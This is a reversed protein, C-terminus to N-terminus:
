KHATAVQATERLAMRLVHGEVKSFSVRALEALTPAIDAPTAAAEYRGPKIGAGYFLVPVRQDDANASGHTTGTTTTMWGPKLALTLDGSRGDVYSLAAARVLRNASTRGGRLQESRLVQEVGPLAHLSATIKLLTAPSAQLKEYVGPAFYVQNSVVASVWKGPGWAAHLQREVVARVVELSLRGADRGDVLLQEPIPTVGHDASLAVVYRGPGVAADLRHLLAGITRDLHAYVDQVEQSDPGFAHGV